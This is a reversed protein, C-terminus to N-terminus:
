RDKYGEHVLTQPLIHNNSMSCKGQALGRIYERGLSSPVIIGMKCTLLSLSPSTIDIM